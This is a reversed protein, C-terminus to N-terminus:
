GTDVAAVSGCCSFLAYFPFGNLSLAPDRRVKIRVSGGRDSCLLRLFPKQTVYYSLVAADFGTGRGSGMRDLRLHGLPNLIGIFVGAPVLGSGVDRGGAGSPACLRRERQRRSWNQVLHRCWSPPRPQATDSVVTVDRQPEGCTTRVETVLHGRHTRRSVPSPESEQRTTTISCCLTFRAGSGSCMTASTRDVSGRRSSAM